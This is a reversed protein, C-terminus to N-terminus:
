KKVVRALANCWWLFVFFLSIDVAFGTCFRVFLCIILSKILPDLIRTGAPAGFIGRVIAIFIAHHATNKAKFDPKVLKQSFDRRFLGIIHARRTKYPM